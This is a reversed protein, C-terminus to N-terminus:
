RSTIKGFYKIQNEERIRTTPLIEMQTSIEPKNGWFDYFSLVGRINSRNKASNSRSISNFHGSESVNQSYMLIQKKSTTNDVIAGHFNIAYDAFMTNFPHDLMKTQNLDEKMIYKPNVTVRVGEVYRNFPDSLTGPVGNVWDSKVDKNNIEVKIDIGLEPYIFRDSEHGLIAKKWNEDQNGRIFDNGLVAIWDQLPQKFNHEKGDFTLKHDTIVLRIPKPSTNIDDPDMQAVLDGCANIFGVMVLVLFMLGFRYRNKIVKLNFSM